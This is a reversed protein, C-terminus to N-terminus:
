AKSKALWDFFPAAMAKYFPLLADEKVKDFAAEFNSILKPLNDEPTVKKAVFFPLLLDLSQLYQAQATMFEDELRKGPSAFSPSLMKDENANISYQKPTISQIKVLRCDVPDVFCVYKPPWILFGHNPEMIEGRGLFVGVVVTSNYHTPLPQSQHVCGGILSAGYLKASQVVSVVSMLKTM